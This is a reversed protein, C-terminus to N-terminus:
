YQWIRINTCSRNTLAGYSSGAETTLEARYGNFHDNDRGGYVGRLSIAAIALGEARAQNLIRRDCPDQAPAAATCGSLLLFLTIVTTPRM